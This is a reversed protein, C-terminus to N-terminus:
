RPKGTPPYTTSWASNWRRARRTKVTRVCVIVPQYFRRAHHHLAKWRGGHELSSWSAVPWVDNLQWYLAGMCRPRPARWGEAATKIAVAQQVQSLYLAQEFGAPMWFYRAFMELIRRDGADNRQHFEMTPSTLNWDKPPCYTRVTALSPSSRYGFESCFRPIVEGYADFSRGEHWVSWFRMDGKGEAHWTDTFDGPEACPSSPWYTRTPDAARAAEGRVADLRAWDLLYRDRNARSEGFWTM